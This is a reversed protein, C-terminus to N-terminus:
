IGGKENIADMLAPFTLCDTFLLDVYKNWMLELEEESHMNPAMLGISTHEAGFLCHALEHFVVERRQLPGFTEWSTEDILVGFDAVCYGAVDLRAFHMRVPQVICGRNNAERYFMEKEAEFSPKEKCSTIVTFLFALALTRM